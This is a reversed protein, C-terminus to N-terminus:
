GSSWTHKERMCPYLMCPFAERSNLGGRGGGRRTVGRDKMSAGGKKRARQQGREERKGGGWLGEPNIGGEGQQKMGGVWGRVEGM